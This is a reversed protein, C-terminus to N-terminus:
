LNKWTCGTCWGLTQIQIIQNMLLIIFWFGWCFSNSCDVWTSSRTVDPSEWSLSWLDPDLRWDIGLETSKTMVEFGLHIGVQKETWSVHSPMRSAYRDPVAEPYQVSRSIRSATSRIPINRNVHLYVHIKRIYIYIYIYIYIFIQSKRICSWHAHSIIVISIYVHVSNTYEIYWQTLYFFMCTSSETSMSKRHKELRGLWSQLCFQSDELLVGIFPMFWNDEFACMSPNWSLIVCTKLFRTCQRKM